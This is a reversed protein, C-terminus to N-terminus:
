EEEGRQGRSTKLASSETRLRREPGPKARTRTLLKQLPHFKNSRPKRTQPGRPKM